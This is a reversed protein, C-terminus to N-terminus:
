EGRRIDVPSNAAAAFGGGLATILRVRAINGDAQLDAAQERAALLREEASLVDLGSGLGTRFRV